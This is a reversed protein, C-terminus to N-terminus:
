VPDLKRTKLDNWHGEFRQIMSRDVNLSEALEKQTQSLYQNYLKWKRM